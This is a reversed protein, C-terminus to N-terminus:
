HLAGRWEFSSVRRLDSCGGGGAQDTHLEPDDISDLLWNEADRETEPPLSFRCAISLRHHQEGPRGLVQRRRLTSQLVNIRGHALQQM